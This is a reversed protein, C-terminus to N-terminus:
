SSSFFILYSSFLDSIESRVKKHEKKREQKKNVKAEYYLFVTGIKM